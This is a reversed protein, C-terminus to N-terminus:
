VFKKHVVLMSVCELDSSNLNEYKTDVRVPVASEEFESFEDVLKLRASEFLSLWESRQVRNFTQVNNEFALKWRSDGFSLYKKSPIKGAYYSLHDKLDITHISCGGPRLLRGIDRVYGPLIDIDVHEMVSRSYIFDFAEDSFSELKGTPDVVYTLGLAEYLDDFSTAGLAATLRGAASDSVLSGFERDKHLVEALDAIYRKIARFQRNDWIDFLVVHVDYFISLVISEWHTWGTGLELLTDGKEVADHRRCLDIISRARDLQADTLGERARKRGGFENGLIRYLSRTQPAISFLKFITAFTIYKLMGVRIARKM